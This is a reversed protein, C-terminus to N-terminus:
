ILRPATGHLRRSLWQPRKPWRSNWDDLLIANAVDVPDDSAAEIQRDDLFRRLRAQLQAQDREPTAEIHVDLGTVWLRYVTGGDDFAVYEGVEVDPAELHAAAEAPSPFVSCENETDFLFM